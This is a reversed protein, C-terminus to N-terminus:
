DIMIKKLPLASNYVGNLTNTMYILLKLFKDMCEQDRIVLDITCKKTILTICEWSHFPLKQLQKFSMQNFHKRLMLFRSSYGGYM